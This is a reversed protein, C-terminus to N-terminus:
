YQTKSNSELVEQYSIVYDVVSFNVLVNLIYILFIGWFSSISFGICFIKLFILFFKLFYM